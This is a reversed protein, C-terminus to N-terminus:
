TRQQILAEDPTTKVAVMMDSTVNLLTMFM